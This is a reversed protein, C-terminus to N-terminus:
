SDLERRSISLFQLVPCVREAQLCWSMAADTAIPSHVPTPAKLEAIVAIGKQEQRTRLIYFGVPARPLEVKGDGTALVRGEFTSLTWNGSNPISVNQGALYVNGPNGPLTKPITRDIHLLFIAALLMHAPINGKWNRTTQKKSNPINIPV